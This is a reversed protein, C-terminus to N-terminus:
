TQIRARNTGQYVKLTENETYAEEVGKMKWEVQFM